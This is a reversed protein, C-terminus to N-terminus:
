STTLRPLWRSRSHSRHPMAIAETLSSLSALARVSGMSAKTGSSDLGVTLVTEACINATLTCDTASSGATRRGAHSLQECQVKGRAHSSRCACLSPRRHSNLEAPSSMIIIQWPLTCLSINCVANQSLPPVTCDPLARPGGSSVLALIQDIPEAPPGQPILGPAANPTLDALSM